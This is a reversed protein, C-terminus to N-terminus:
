KSKLNYVLNHPLISVSMAFFSGFDVDPCGQQFEIFSQIYNTGGVKPAKYSQWTTSTAESFPSM